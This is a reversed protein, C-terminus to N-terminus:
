GDTREVAESVAGLSSVAFDTSEEAYFRYGEGALDEDKPAHIRAAEKSIVQRRTNGFAAALQGVYRIL